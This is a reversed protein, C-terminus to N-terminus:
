PQKEFLSWCFKNMIDSFDRELFSYLKLGKMHM